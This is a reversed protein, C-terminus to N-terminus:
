CDCNKLYGIKDCYRNVRLESKCASLTLTTVYSRTKFPIKFRVPLKHKYIPIKLDPLKGGRFPEEQLTILANNNLVFTYFFHYLYLIYM